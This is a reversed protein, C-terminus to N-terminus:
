SSAPPTCHSCHAEDAHQGSANFRHLLSQLTELDDAPWEAFRERYGAASRLRLQALLDRGAPTTTILAVRRDASSDTCGIMGLERLKSIHRSVAAKNMDLKAAIETATIPERRAIMQLMMLALGRLEPHVDEAARVWNTRASAYMESLELILNDIVGSSTAAKPLSSM